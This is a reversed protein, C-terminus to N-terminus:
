KYVSHNELIECQRYRGANIAIAACAGNCSCNAILSDCCAIIEIATCYEMGRLYGDNKRDFKIDMVNKNTEGFRMQDIYLLDRGFESIFRNLIREDETALFVYKYQLEKKKRKVHEILKDIDYPIPHNLPKLGLYDSGRALVGVTGRLDMKLLEQKVKNQLSDSRVFKSAYLEGIKRGTEVEERYLVALSENKGFPYNYREDAFKSLIVNCSNYVSELTYESPQNYYEEWINVTGYRELTAYETYYNKMDIILEYNNKKATYYSILARYFFNYFGNKQEQWHARLVYFTIQSNEQGFSVKKEENFEDLFNVIKDPQVDFEQMLKQKIEDYYVSTVLIFDYEICMAAECPYLKEKENQIKIESDTIAIIQYLQNIWYRNKQYTDGYGYVVIKKSQAKMNKIWWM